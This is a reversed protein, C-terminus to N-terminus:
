VTVDSWLYGATNLQVVHTYADDYYLVDIGKSGKHPDSETRQLPYGGSVLTAGFKIDYMGTGGVYLLGACDNWVDAVAGGPTTAAIANGVYVRLGLISGVMELSIPVAPDAKGGGTVYKVINPHLRMANAATPSLWLVNPRQGIIGRLVEQKTNIAGLPDSSTHSWQSTGALTSYHTASAYSGTATLLAAALAERRTEVQTRIVKAKENDIDIGMAAAASREDPDIWASMGHKTLTINTQTIGLDARRHEGYMGIEDPANLLAERGFTFYTARLTGDPSASVPPLLQDGIFPNQQYAIGGPLFANNNPQLDALATAKQFTVKDRLTETINSM